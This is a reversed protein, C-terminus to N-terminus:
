EGFENRLQTELDRIAQRSNYDGDNFFEIIDNINRPAPNDSYDAEYDPEYNDTDDISINDVYMEFEFGVLPRIRRMQRDSLGLDIEFISRRFERYRM